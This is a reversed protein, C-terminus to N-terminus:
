NMRLVKSGIMDIRICYIMGAAGHGKLTFTRSRYNHQEMFQSLPSIEHEGGTFGHIFLCSEM